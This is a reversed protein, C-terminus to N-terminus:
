PRVQEPTITVGSRRFEFRLKWDSFVPQGDQQPARFKWNRAADLAHAAFYRSTGRRDLSAAVVNGSPDIHLRVVVDVTGRITHFAGEPVDPQVRDLV